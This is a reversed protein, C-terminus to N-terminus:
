WDKQPRAVPQPDGKKLKDHLNREQQQLAKLKDEADQKSMRSQSKNQNKKENKNQQQQNQQNEKQKKLAKQLNQRAEEDNPRLRLAQKYAEICEPLRNNVQHVVGKNFYIEAKDAPLSSKQLARDYAAIADDPKKAKFLANGLNLEAIFDASKAAAAQYHGAAKEYEANNYLNNGDRILERAEQSFAPMAFFLLSIALVEKGIKRKQKRKESVFIEFVLLIFAFLLFYQFFSRYNVLSDDVVNRQEMSNLEALLNTVVTETSSFLQYSGNGAKAIQQLAAENLRSVVPGGNADLKVQQTLPDKLTSGQQSGVGVVNIIVGKSALIKAQEIANEDHDEGDSLLLVSKYKKDNPNFSLDAIRLAEGIVTGQSPVSGPNASAIYMKAATHDSTLPMQLYAKGAFIVLGIRNNELRPLLRSLLQRARELRSPSIDEALMSNSVDLVVMLDVGTRTVRQSSEPSRPNALALAAFTFATIVLLFKLLFKGPHYQRTLEKILLPDGLKRAVTKKRKLALFYLLIFFPVAALVWLFSIHEFRFM